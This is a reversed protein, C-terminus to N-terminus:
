CEVPSIKQGTRLCWVSSFPSTWPSKWLKTGQSVSDNRNGSLERDRQWQSSGSGLSSGISSFVYGTWRRSWAWSKGAMLSRANPSKSVFGKTHHARWGWPMEQGRGTEASEVEHWDSLCCSFNDVWKKSGLKKGSRQRERKKWSHDFIYLMYNVM